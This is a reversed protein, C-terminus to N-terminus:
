KKLPHSQWRSKSACMSDHYALRHAEEPGFSKALEEQFVRQADTIALLVTIKPDVKEGPAPFPRMGARMEAVATYNPDPGDDDKAGHAELVVRDCFSKVREALVESGLAQACAPMIKENLRDASRKTAAKIAAADQPGLGMDNLTEPGPTWGDETRCPTRARMEGNKAMEAWDEKSFEWENKVPKGGNNEVALKQEADALRREISKKEGEMSELKARYSGVQEVLNKNANAFAEEATGSASAGNPSADGRLAGNVRLGASTLEARDGANLVASEAGHSVAVRGEYVTVLALASAMVGAGIMKLDRKNMDENGNKPALSVRFCTGLVSVDGVPTHVTFRKGKEVRYFVEGRAQTVDDGRWSVESGDELVALARAGLAVERRVEATANGEAPPEARHVIFAASAALAFAAIGTTLRRSFAPRRKIARPARVSAPEAAVREMMRDAFGRPPAEPTWADLWADRADTPQTNPDDDRKM